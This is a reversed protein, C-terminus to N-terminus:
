VGAPLPKVRTQARCGPIVYKGFMEISSLAREHPITETQTILIVQDVGADEYLQVGRICSDPDGALIIGRECLTDVFWLNDFGVQEALVCQELTEKYLTNWDVNTGTFPRQAEYLLGFQM